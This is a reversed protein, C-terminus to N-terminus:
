FGQLDSPRLPTWKSGRRGYIVEIRKGTYVEIFQVDPDISQFLEIAGGMDCCQNAPLDLRGSRAAFDYRLDRVRCVLRIEWPTRKM